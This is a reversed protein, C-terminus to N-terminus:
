IIGDHINFNDSPESSFVHLIHNITDASIGTPELKMPDRDIFFEKWPSDLWLKKRVETTKKAETYADECLQSYHGLEEQVYVALM